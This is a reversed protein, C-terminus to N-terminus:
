RARRRGHRQGNASGSDNGVSLRASQLLFMHVQTAAYGMAM